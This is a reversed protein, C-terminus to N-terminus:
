DKRIVALHLLVRERFGMAQYIGVARSNGQRVHLFPTEGRDYIRQMIETMLIRAYGRGAFDPHTCVASIETYGPVHLREGAMAALNGNIRFGLYTGMQRTRPSFPGPKTLQTLAMMEPVDADGLELITPRHNGPVDAPRRGEHIMELLPATRVTTWGPRPVYPEVLFIASVDGPRSLRALASWGDENPAHIASLVSIEPVFRRAAERGEAMHAQRTTLALWIINDLPHM